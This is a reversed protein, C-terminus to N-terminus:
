FKQLVNKIKIKWNNNRRWNIRVYGEYYNGFDDFEGTSYKVKYGKSKLEAAAEKSLVGRYFLEYNGKACEQKIEEYIKVLDKISISKLSDETIKRAKDADM